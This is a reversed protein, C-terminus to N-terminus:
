PGRLEKRPGSRAESPTIGPVDIPGCVSPPRPEFRLEDITVRILHIADGVADQFPMASFILRGGVEQADTALPDKEADQRVQAQPDEQAEEKRSLVYASRKSGQRSL